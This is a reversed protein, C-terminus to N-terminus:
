PVPVAPTERLRTPDFAYAYFTVSYSTDNAGFVVSKVDIIRESRELDFLLRKFQEYRIGEFVVSGRVVYRGNGNRTELMNAVDISSLVASNAKAIEDFLVYLSQPNTGSPIMNQVRTRRDAEVALYQRQVEDLSAVYAENDAAMRELPSVDLDGGGVVRGMKPIFLFAYAAVAYMLAAVVTLIPLARALSETKLQQIPAAM